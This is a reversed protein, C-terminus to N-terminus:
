IQRRRAMGALLALGSLMMAYTEPEPVPTISAFGSFETIGTHAALTFKTVIRMYDWSTAMPGSADAAFTGGNAAGINVGANTFTAGGNSSLEFKQTATNPNAMDTTLDAHVFNASSVVPAINGGTIFTYTQSVGNKNRALIDYSLDPDGHGSINKLSLETATQTSSWDWSNGNWQWYDPHSADTSSLLQGNQFYQGVYSGQLMTFNNNGTAVLLGSVDETWSPIGSQEITLFATNSAALASGASLTVAAAIAVSITTKFM